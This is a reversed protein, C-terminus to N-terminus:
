HNEKTDEDEGTQTKFRGKSKEKISLFLRSNLAQNAYDLIKKLKEAVQDSKENEMAAGRIEQLQKQLIVLENDLDKETKLTAIRDKLLNSKVDKNLSRTSPSYSRMDKKEKKEKVIKEVPQNAPPSNNLKEMKEHKFGKDAFGLEPEIGNRRTIPDYDKSAGGNLDYYRKMWQAFELNDQYKAKALKEVEIHKNLNCKLFSQQLVKFNNVFEWELKAKFNVRSMNVKGSYISDLIQCYVAGTGLQEIKTLKMQYANNIWQIIEGKSVFFAGEMMGIVESM